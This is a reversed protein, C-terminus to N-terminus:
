FTDHCSDRSLYYLPLFFCIYIDAPLPLPRRAYTAMTAIVDINAVAVTSAIYHLLAPTSADANTLMAAARM